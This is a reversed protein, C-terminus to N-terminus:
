HFDTTTSWKGQSCLGNCESDFTLDPVTSWKGASCGDCVRKTTGGISGQGYRGAECSCFLRTNSSSTDLRCPASSYSDYCINRPDTDCSYTPAIGVVELPVVMRMVYLKTNSPSTSFINGTSAYATNSSFIVDVLVATSDDELRLAGGKHSIGCDNGGCYSSSAFGCTASGIYRSVTCYPCHQGGANNGDDAIGVWANKIHLNILTLKAQGQLYFHRAEIEFYGFNNSGSTCPTTRPVTEVDGGRDLIPNALSDVGRIRLEEGGVLTTTTGLTCSATEITIFNTGVVDFSPCADDSGAEACQAGASM